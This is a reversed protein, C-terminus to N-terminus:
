RSSGAAVPDLLAPEAVPAPMLSIVKVRQGPELAQLLIRRGNEFQIADRYTNADASIETFVVREMEGVNLERQLRKPIDRLMLGAGPPVCVAHVRSESQWSPQQNGFWAKLRNWMGRQECPTAPHTPALESPSALGLSAGGFRHVVLQEGEVALRNPFIHLSYDCM